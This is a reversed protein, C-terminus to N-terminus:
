DERWKHGCKSCKYIITSAEDASRTQIQTYFAEGHSCQPCTAEVKEGKEENEKSLVVDSEKKKLKLEHSVTEKLSYKYPCLRCYFHSEGREVGDELAYLLFSGCTPCFLHLM